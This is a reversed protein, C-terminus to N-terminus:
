STERLSASMSEAIGRVAQLASTVEGYSLSVKRGVIAEIDGSKDIYEQDVVGMKHAFLHRKQFLRVVEAWSEQSLPAALDIDFLNRLRARSDLLNQFNIKKAREANPTKEALVRILERGFADFASVCDELANEILKESLEPEAVSINVMKSVVELNKELIQLSNHQGCDPCFAFVGYVSYQLTCNACVVETELQKEGYYRIPVRPGTQVKMSVGLGFAGDPKHEFELSKLDKGIADTFERIVVSELFKIQDHTLFHDHEAIHGCYPCHCPLGEEELGTSFVIKFYKECESNPCERGTFGESDAPISM